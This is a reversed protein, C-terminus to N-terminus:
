FAVDSRAEFEAALQEWRAARARVLRSVVGFCHAPLHTAIREWVEPDVSRPDLLRLLLRGTDSLRVAPDNRLMGLLQLHDVHVDHAATSKVEPPCRRSRSRAGLPVPDDGRALRDRVDKVTAVSLGAAIAVERLPANPREALM